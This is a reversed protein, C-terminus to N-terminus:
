AAVAQMGGRRLHLALAVDDKTPVEHGALDGVTWALRLVKDVGRASLKGADLARDLMGGDQPRPLAAHLYRGPVEANTSFGCGKYRAAQRARAQAVRAAVTASSEPEGADRGPRVNALWCHIDIRDLVPGSIRQAYRRIAMPPCQCEASQAAQFKGCPCPNSALVLQFSAPYEAQGDARGLVIRGNELPTRLADLVRPSFEPAEDLFLVGRHALSVAGPKAFRQGGGVISAMTASHHPDSFPPQRRLQTVTVGALSHVAAVELAEEVSLPPLIGPLRAALM